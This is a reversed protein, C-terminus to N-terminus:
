KVHKWTKNENVAQIAARSVEFLEALKHQSYGLALLARISQVRKVDLKSNWTPQDPTVARRIRNAHSNSRPRGLRQEIARLRKVIEQLVTNELDSM